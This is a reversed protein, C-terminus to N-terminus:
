LTKLFFFKAWSFMFFSAEFTALGAWIWGLDWNRNWLFRGSVKFQIIALRTNFLVKKGFQALLYMDEKKATGAPCLAPIVSGSFPLGLRLTTLILLPWSGRPGRQHRGWPQTLLISRYTHVIAGFVTLFLWFKTKGLIGGEQPSLEPIQFCRSPSM